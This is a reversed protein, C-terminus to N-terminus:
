RNCFASNSLHGFLWMESCKDLTLMNFPGFCQMFRCPLRKTMNKSWESFFWSSFSQTIADFNQSQKNVYQCGIVLIRGWYFLTNLVVLEFAIINLYLFMKQIKEVKESDVYCESYKSVFFTGRFNNTKSIISLM